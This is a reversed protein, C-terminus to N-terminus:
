NESEAKKMRELWNKVLLRGYEEQEPSLKSKREEKIEEAGHELMLKIIEPDTTNISQAYTFVTKNYAIKFNPNAGYKLLAKALELSNLEVAKLLEQSLAARDAEGLPAKEDWALAKQVATNNGFEEYKESLERIKEKHHALILILAHYKEDSYALAEKREILLELIDFKELIIAFRDSRNAGFVGLDLLTHLLIGNNRSVVGLALKEGTKGEGWRFIDQPIKDRHTLLYQAQEYYVSSETVTLKKGRSPVFTYETDEQILEVIDVPLASRRDERARFWALALASFLILPCTMQKDRYDILTIEDSKEGLKRVKIPSDFDRLAGIEYEGSELQLIEILDEPDLFAFTRGLIKLNPGHEYHDYYTKYCGRNSHGHDDYVLYVKNM